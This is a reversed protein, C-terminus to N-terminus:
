PKVELANPTEWYPANGTPSPASLHEMSPWLYWGIRIRYRGPHLPPLDVGLPILSGMPWLATLQLLDQQAILEGRENLLHVFFTYNQLLSRQARWGFWLTFPQGARLSGPQEYGELLLVGGFSIASFCPPLPRSVVLVFPLDIGDSGDDATRWRRGEPGSYLGIRIRYPGPRIDAPIRLYHDDRYHKEPDWRRAPVGGPHVHDSQFAQPLSLLPRDAPIGHVYVHVDEDPTRLARWWLTLLVIEGPRVTWREISYGALRVQGEFDARVSLDAGPPRDLPVRTMSWLHYPLHFGITALFLICAGRASWHRPREPNTRVFDAASALREERKRKQKQAKRLIAWVSWGSWLTLAAHDFLRWLWRSQFRVRVTHVGAPMEARLWGTGAEVWASIPMGNVLVQWGPYGLIWFRAPFSLASSIEWAQDLPGKYLLRAQAGPPLANLDLRSPEEGRAYAAAVDPPTEPWGEVWRPFLEGTATLGPYQQEQEYRHLDKLTSNALARRSGGDYILGLVGLILILAAAFACPWRHGPKLDEISLGILLAIILGAPGLWRWPFQIYHLFPLAAWVPYSVPLMLTTLILLLIWGWLREPRRARRRFPLIGNLSPLALLMQHLGFTLVHPHNGWREDRLPPMSLLRPVTLFHRTAEYVGTRARELHVLGIDTFSPGLYPLAMGLGIIFAAMAKAWRRVPAREKWIVLLAYAFAVSYGMMASLNHCLGLLATSVALGSRARFGGQRIAYDISILLWPILNVAVYQPYNSQQLQFPMYGFALGAVMSAAQSLGWRRALWYAGASGVWAAGMLVVKMAQDLPFGLGVILAAVSWPFLPAHFVFLPYGAGGALDPAWRPYLVGAQWMRAMELARYGHLLADGERPWGPQSIGEWWVLLGISMSLLGLERWIKM